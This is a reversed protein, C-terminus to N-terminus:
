RVLPCVPHAAAGKRLVRRCHSWLKLLCSRDLCAARPHAPSRPNRNCKAGHLSLRPWPWPLTGVSRSRPEQLKGWGGAAASRVTWLGSEIFLGLPVGWGPGGPQEAPGRGVGQLMLQSRPVTLRAPGPQGLCGSKQTQVPTYLSPAPCPPSALVGGRPLRGAESRRRWSGSPARAAATCSSTQAPVRPCQPSHSQASARRSSGTPAPQAGRDRGGRAAVSSCTASM